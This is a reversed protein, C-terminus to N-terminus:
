LRRYTWHTTDHIQSSLSSLIDSVIKLQFLYIHSRATHASYMYLSNLQITITSTLHFHSRCPLCCVCVCLYSFYREINRFVVVYISRVKYQIYIVFPMWIRKNSYIIGMSRVGWEIEHENEARKQKTTTTTTTPISLFRNWVTNWWEGRQARCNQSFTWIRNWHKISM